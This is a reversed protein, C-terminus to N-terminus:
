PRTAAESAAGDVVRELESFHAIRVDCQALEHAPGYGYVCGVTILGNRRGAEVDSSRDGVMFGHSSGLQDLVIRVLDAKDTTNYSSAAAAVQFHRRIDCAEMVADVYGQTGNSAVGLSYGQRALLALTSAVGPYLKGLGKKIVELEYFDMYRSAMFQIERDHGPLLREWIVDWTYGYSLNLIDDPPLPLKTLGERHLRDFTSRFAPIAVTETHFLTGDLDFVIATAKSPM